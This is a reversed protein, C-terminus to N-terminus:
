LSNSQHTYATLSVALVARICSLMVLHSSRLVHYRILVSRISLMSVSVCPKIVYPATKFGTAVATVIRIVLEVSCPPYPYAVFPVVECPEVGPRNSVSVPFRECDVTDVRVSIVLRTIATPYRPFRLRIVLPRIM